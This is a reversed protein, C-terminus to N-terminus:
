DVFIHISMSYHPLTLGKSLVDERRPAALAVMPWWM